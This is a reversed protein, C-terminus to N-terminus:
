RNVVELAKELDRREEPLNKPNLGLAKRYYSWALRDDGKKEFAEALSQYVHYDRPFERRNLM